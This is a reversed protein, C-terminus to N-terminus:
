FALQDQQYVCARLCWGGDNNSWIIIMKNRFTKFDEQVPQTVLNLATLMYTIYASSIHCVWAAKTTLYYKDICVDKM